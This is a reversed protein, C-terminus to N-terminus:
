EIEASYTFAAGDATKDTNSSVLCVEEYINGFSECSYRVAKSEDYNLDIVEYSSSGRKRRVAKLGFRTNGKAKITIKLTKGYFEHRFMQYSSSLHSLKDTSYEYPFKEAISKISAHSNWLYGEKYFQTPNINYAMFRSYVTGLDEEKYLTKITSDIANVSNRYKTAQTDWIRKITQYGGWNESLYKVFIVGSYSSEDLPRDPASMIRDLYQIYDNVGDYVEDENWTASAEKWWTDADVNYTNQVAHFFEHAVTVRMCDLAPERFGKEHSYSNDISIKSSSTKPGNRQNFYSVPFTIGYKGSLDYVNVDMYKKGSDLVPTRFGRESCTIQKVSDFSEGIAEIYDPVGDRNTDYESVAHEGRLTYHIKFFGSPSMYEKDLAPIATSLYARAKEVIDRKSDRKRVYRTIEEVITTGSKIPALNTYEDPLRNKDFISYLYLLIRNHEDITGGRFNSAIVDEFSPPAVKPVPNKQTQNSTYPYYYNWRIM